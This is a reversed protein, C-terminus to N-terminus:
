GLSSLWEILETDQEWHSAKPLDLHATAKELAARKAENDARAYVETTSIDAHGLYDKIFVPNVNAQVMHMAKTHRFVHPSIKTPIGTDTEQAMDAYKRVIYTIGSRTLKHRSGNWFLPMDPNRRVDIHNEAFYSRLLETTQKMLPVTRIKGGKGHLTIVAPFDLRVDRMCIDVLESVRAATDYLVTLLVLHRRGKATSTDPMSLLHKLKEPTLYQAPPVPSVTMGAYKMYRKLNESLSTSSQFEGYPHIHRIFVNDCESDLRGNKLYDIIADGIVPLLPLTNVKQTKQQTYTILKQHWDLNKFKLACIDGARMGLLIALLLMAYDRKGIANSRDIVSLLQRVEEPSWTEPINEEVYIKPRPVSPSLDDDSIGNEHLYRFFDRLVSSFVHITARHYRCLTTMFESIDAATLESLEIGRGDLFCFFQRMKTRKVRITGASSKNRHCWALYEELLGIYQRPVTYDHHSYRLAYGFQFIDDLFRISCRTDLQQKTLKATPDGIDLGYRYQFYQPGTETDYATIENERCFNSFNRFEKSHRSLTSSKFDLRILEMNAANMLDIIPVAKRSHM